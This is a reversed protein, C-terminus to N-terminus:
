CSKELFDPKRDVGAVSQGTGKETGKERPFPFQGGGRIFTLTWPPASAAALAFRARCCHALCTRFLLPLFKRLEKSRAKAKSKM